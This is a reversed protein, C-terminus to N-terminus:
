PSAERPSPLICQRDLTPPLLCLRSCSSSLALMSTYEQSDNHTAFNQYCSKSESASPSTSQPHRIVTQLHSNNLEFTSYQAPLNTTPASRRITHCPRCTGNTSGRDRASSAGGRGLTSVQIHIIVSNKRVFFSIPIGPIQRSGRRYRARPAHWVHEIPNIDPSCAPHDAVKWGAEQLWILARYSNHIPSNDQM